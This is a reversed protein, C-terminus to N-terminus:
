ETLNAHFWAANASITKTALTTSICVVAGKSVYINNDMSVTSSAPLHFRLIPTAGDGPLTTEDFVQVYGAVATNNTVVLDEVIGPEDLLVASVEAADSTYQYEPIVRKQSTVIIRQKM